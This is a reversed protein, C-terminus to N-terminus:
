EEGSDQTGSGNPRRSFRMIEYFGFLFLLIGIMVEVATVARIADSAPTIDGYGVTSVTILSFYLSDVFGIPERVGAILFLPTEAIRDAIRYIMAFVIVNFSYLTFFAFAPAFLHLMRVFFQDFLLGTDILFVCITRSMVVIFISTLAMAGVMTAGAEVPDLDFTPVFFTLASLTSVPILWAFIRSPHQRDVVYDAYAVRRIESRHWWAGILFAFIPMLYGVVFAWPQVTPFNEVALFFYVCTYIALSNAFSLVFFRSGPFLWLFAGAAAFVAVLVMVTLLGFSETVGVAILLVTFASFVVARVWQRYPMRAPTIQAAM